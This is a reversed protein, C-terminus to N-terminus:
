NEKSRLLAVCQRYPTPTSNISSFTTRGDQWQFEVEVGKPSTFCAALFPPYPTLHIRWGNTLADTVLRPLILPIM